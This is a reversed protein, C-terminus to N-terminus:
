EIVVVIYNKYSHTNTRQIRRDFKIRKQTRMVIVSYSHIRTYFLRRCIKTSDSLFFVCKQLQLEFQTVHWKNARSLEDKPVALKSLRYFYHEDFRM